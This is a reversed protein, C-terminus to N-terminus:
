KGNIDDIYPSFNQEQISLGHIFSNVCKKSRYSQGDPCCKKFCRKLKCVNNLKASCKRLVFNSNLDQDFCYTNEKMKITKVWAERYSKFTTDIILQRKCDPLGVKVFQSTIFTEAANGRLCSRTRNNYVYQLPCCKAFIVPTLQKKSILMSNNFKYHHFHNQEVDVCEGFENQEIVNTTDSSLQYNCNPLEVCTITGNEYIQPKFSYQCCKPIDKVQESHQILNPLLFVSLLLM